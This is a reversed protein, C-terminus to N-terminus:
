LVEGFVYNLELLVFLPLTVTCLSNWNQNFGVSRCAKAGEQILILIINAPSFSSIQHYRFYSHPLNAPLRQSLYTRTHQAKLPEEKGLGPFPSPLGPWPSLILDPFLVICLGTM